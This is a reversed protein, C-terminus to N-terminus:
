QRSRGILAVQYAYQRPPWELEIGLQLMTASVNVGCAEPVTLTVWNLHHRYLEERARALGRKLQKRATGQWYLCCELQRQSWNEHKEFMRRVHSALDFRNYVLYIPHQLDLVQGLLPAQPPCTARKDYNPCGKPHNPYPQQCLGRVSYDIVPVVEILLQAEVEM